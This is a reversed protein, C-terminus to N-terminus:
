KGLLYELFLVALERCESGAPFAAYVTGEQEGIYYYNEEFLDAGELSVGIPVDNYYLIRGSGDLEKLTEEDLIASLDDFWDQEEYHEIVDEGSVMLDIEGALVLTLLKQESEYNYKVFNIEEKETSISTSRDVTVQEKKPNIYLEEFPEVLNEEAAGLDAFNILSVYLVEEKKFLVSRALVILFVVAAVTILVPVLYYDKFYELRKPLPAHKIQEREERFEDMKAM